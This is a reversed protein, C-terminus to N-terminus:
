EGAVPACGAFRAETSRDAMAVDEHQPTLLARQHRDCPVARFSAFDLVSIGALRRRCAGFGCPLGGSCVLWWCAHPTRDSRARLTAPPAGAAPWGRAAPM